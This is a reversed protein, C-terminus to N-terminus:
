NNMQDCSAKPGPRPAKETHPNHTHIPWHVPIVMAKAQTRRSFHHQTHAEFTPYRTNLLSKCDPSVKRPLGHGLLYKRFFLTVWPLCFSNRPAQRCKTLERLTINEKIRQVLGTLYISDEQREEHSFQPESIETEREWTLSSYNEALVKHSYVYELKIICAMLWM